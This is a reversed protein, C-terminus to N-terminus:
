SIWLRSKLTWRDADGELLYGEGFRAHFHWEAYFRREGSPAFAALGRDWSWPSPPHWSSGKHLHLMRRYPWCGIHRLGRPSLFWSDVVHSQLSDAEPAQEGHEAIWLGEPCMTTRRWALAIEAILATRIAPAIGKTMRLCAITSAASDDTLGRDSDLLLFRDGFRCLEDDVDDLILYEHVESHAQLWASIEEGRSHRLVPTIDIIEGRFGAVGFLERLAPLGNQVRWSSSIVIHAGTAAVIRNLNAIAVPDFTGRQKVWSNPILVGDIDLFLVKM